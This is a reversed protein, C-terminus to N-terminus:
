GAGGAVFRGGPEVDVDLAIGSARLAAVDIVEVIATKDDLAFATGEIAIADGLRGDASKEDVVLCFYYSYFCFGLGQIQLELGM